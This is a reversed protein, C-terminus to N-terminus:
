QVFVRCLQHNPLCLKDADDAAVVVGKGGQQGGTAAVTEQRRASDLTGRREAQELLVRAVLPSGLSRALEPAREASRSHRGGGARRGAGGDAIRFLIMCARSTVACRVKVEPPVPGDEGGRMCTHLRARPGVEAHQLQADLQKIYREHMSQTQRRIRSSSLRGRLAAQEDADLVGNGDRDYRELMRQAKREVLWQRVRVEEERRGAGAGGGGGGHM